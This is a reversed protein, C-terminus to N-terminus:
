NRAKGDIQRGLLWGTFRRQGEDYSRVAALPDRLIQTTRKLTAKAVAIKRADRSKLHRRARMRERRTQALFWAFFRPSICIARREEIRRARSKAEAAMAASRFGSPPYEDDWAQIAIDAAALLTAIEPVEKEFDKVFEERGLKGALSCIGAYMHILFGAKNDLPGWTRTRPVVSSGQEHSAPNDASQTENLDM